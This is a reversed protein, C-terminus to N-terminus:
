TEILVVRLFGPEKGAEDEGEGQVTIQHGTKSNPPIKIMVTSARKGSMGKGNCQVCQRFFEGAGECHECYVAVEHKHQGFRSRGHCHRCLEYRNGDGRCGKCLDTKNYSVSVWGGVRMREPLLKLHVLINRGTHGGQFYTCDGASVTASSPKSTPKEKKESEPPKPAPKTAADYAARLNKFKTEAEPDGPNKDPHLKKAAKHYAAKIEEPSSNPSVGLTSYPDM